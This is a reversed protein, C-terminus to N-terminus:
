RAKKTPPIMSYDWDYTSKQERYFAVQQNDKYVGIYMVYFRPDYDRVEKIETEIEATGSASLSATGRGQYMRGNTNDIHQDAGDAKPDNLTWLYSVLMNEKTLNKLTFRFPFPSSDSDLCYADVIDVEQVSTDPLAAIIIDLNLDSPVTTSKCGFSALLVLLLLILAITGILKKM